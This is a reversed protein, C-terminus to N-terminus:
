KIVFEATDSRIMMFLTVGRECELNIFLMCFYLLSGLFCKGCKGEKEVTIEKNAECAASKLNCLNGYTKGDSGCVPM